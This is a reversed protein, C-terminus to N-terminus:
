KSGSVRPASQFEAATMRKIQGNTQLVGGGENQVKKEYAIIETGGNGELPMKAGWLVIVEGIKIALFGRPYLPENKALDALRSPARGTEASYDRLLGAVEALGSSIVLEQQEVPPVSSSCGFAGIMVIVALIAIRASPIGLRMPWGRSTS